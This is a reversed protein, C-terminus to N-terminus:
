EILNDSSFALPLLSSANNLIWVSATQGSLIIRFQTKHRMEHELLAQRCIGCPSIPNADTGHLTKYSIALTIIHAHPAMSSITSLLVREASITAGYSANEQNSGLIISHDSLKAAAGVKFQSYPAYALATANRAEQLLTQDDASLELHSGFKEFSFSINQQLKTKRQLSTISGPNM